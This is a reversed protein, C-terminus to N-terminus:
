GHGVGKKFCSCSSEAETKIDSFNGCGTTECDWHRCHDCRVDRYEFKVLYHAMIPWAAMFVLLGIVFLARWEDVVFALFWIAALLASVVVTVQTSLRM